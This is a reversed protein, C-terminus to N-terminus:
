YTDVLSRFRLRSSDFTTGPKPLIRIRRNEKPLLTFYNEAFWSPDDNITLEVGVALVSSRLEVYQDGEPGPVVKISMAPRYLRLVKPAAFFVERQSLVQDHSVLRILLVADLTDMFRLVPALNAAYVRSVAQARADAAAVESWRINGHFDILTLEMRLLLDTTSDNVVRVELKQDTIDPLLRITSFAEIMASHAAKRRGYRDVTSWSVVPWTDNLQWYLSGMCRPMAGRQADIAATLADAQLLQSVHAYSTFDKPERYRSRLYETITQFGTPHKQHLALAGKAPDLVGPGTFSRITALAPIGQFGYESVFRGTKERYSEFPAHGWWVGWFHVDGSRYAAERGWGTAPSSPHYPRDDYQMVTEPLVQHFLSDYAAKIQASDQESYDYQRQWGWNNWGEDAENNGCWLALSPHNRLRRLQGIAEERVNERFAPGVPVMSCAFMFDQWVLLGLSDCARYFADPPYIGGGWVRLMNMGAGHAISVLAVWASDTCAAAFHDPPIVNAGKMFLPRGNVEFYFASGLSDQEQRLRLTRLGVHVTDRVKKGAADSLTIYFPYLPQGGSRNPWWRQPNRITCEVSVSQVGPELRCKMERVVAAEDAGTVSLTYDGSTTAAVEASIRVRAEQDNLSVIQVRSGLYRFDDWAELQVPGNIGCGVFRAGWDWGFHYAAKRVYVRDEGPIVFPAGAALEHAVMAAPKFEVVLENRHERVRQKVPIRWQRFMNDATLVVEGNLRVSAYTDLGDFVLELNTRSLLEPQIDFSCRYLWTVSDVWGLLRENEGFYPDPIRGARLLDTHVTGPIIAPLWNTSDQQCFSWAQLLAQQLVAPRAHLVKVFAFFVLVVVPLKRIM